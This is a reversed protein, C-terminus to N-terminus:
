SGGFGNLLNAVAPYLLVIFLAPFILLVLPFLMKIPAKQAREEILSRRRKRIESNLNRLIAGISVGLTEGQRISRVFARMSPTECRDVLNDLADDVSLGLSQEQSTLRLEEGIPGDLRDAALQMAAGFGGGAEVTVILLDVLDPMHYDIRELRVRARRRLVVLPVVWGLVLGYIILLASIAPPFAAAVCLWLMVATLATTALVRYGMFTRVDISYIAAGLLTRRMADRREPDLRAEAAAGLRDAARKLAPASTTDIEPEDAVFGYAGIGELRAAVRARPAALGRVVLAVSGAALAIMAIGTLLLM